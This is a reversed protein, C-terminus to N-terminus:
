RTRSPLLFRMERLKPDLEGTLSHASLSPIQDTRIGQRGLEQCLASAPSTNTSYINPLTPPPHLCSPVPEDGAWVHQSQLVLFPCSHSDPKSRLGQWPRRGGPCGVAGREAKWIDVAPLRLQVAPGPLDRHGYVPTLQFAQPESVLHEGVQPVPVAAAAQVSPLAVLHRHAAGSLRVDTPVNQLHTLPLHRAPPAGTLLQSVKAM